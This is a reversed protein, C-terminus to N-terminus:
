MFSGNQGNIENPLKVTDNVHVNICEIHDYNRFQKVSKIENFPGTNVIKKKCNLRNIYVIYASALANLAFIRM